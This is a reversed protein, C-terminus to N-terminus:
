KKVPTAVKPAAPTTRTQSAVKAQDDRTGEQGFPGPLSEPPPPPALIVPEPVPGM